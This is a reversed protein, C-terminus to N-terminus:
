KGRKKWEVIKGAQIEIEDSRRLNRIQKRNLMPFHKVEALYEPIYDIEERTTMWGFKDFRKLNVPPSYSRLNKRGKDDIYEHFYSMALERISNYIPERYRLAAHNTKSIAGWKGDKKFLAVVHDFDHRNATLDLLLPEQGHVRLALAALVAGETCHCIRKKLVMIPPLSTDGKEEFNIKLTDLFDQIKAPTSLKRLIKLEKEPIIKRM